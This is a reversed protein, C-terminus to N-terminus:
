LQRTGDSHVTVILVCWVTAGFALFIPLFHNQHSNYFCVDASMWALWCLILLKHSSVTLALFLWSLIYDRLVEVDVNPSSERPDYDYLAVMRRTSVQHQRGSRKNREPFFLNLIFSSFLYTLLLYQLSLFVFYEKLILINLNFLIDFFLM